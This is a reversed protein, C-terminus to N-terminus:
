LFSQQPQFTSQHWAAGRQTVWGLPHGDTGLQVAPVLDVTREATAQWRTTRLRAAAARLVPGHTDHALAQALNAPVNPGRLQAGYSAWAEALDAQTVPPLTPCHRAMLEV